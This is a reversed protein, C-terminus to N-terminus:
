SGPSPSPGHTIKSEKRAFAVRAFAVRAFAVRAVDAVLAFAVCFVVRVSLILVRAEVKM